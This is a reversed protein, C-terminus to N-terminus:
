LSLQKPAEWTFVGNNPRGFHGYAATDQYRKSGSEVRQLDLDRIIFGPRFNFGSPRRSLRLSRPACPRL